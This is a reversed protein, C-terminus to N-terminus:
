RPKFRFMSCGPPSRCPQSLATTMGIGSTGPVIPRDFSPERFSRDPHTPGLRPSGPPSSRCPGSRDPVDPGRVRRALGTSTAGPVAAMSKGARDLSALLHLGLRGRSTKGTPPSARSYPFSRRVVRPLRRDRRQDSIVPSLRSIPKGAARRVAATVCPSCRHSTQDSRIRSGSLSTGTTNTSEFM